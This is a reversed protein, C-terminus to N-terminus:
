QRREILRDIKDDMRVQRDYISDVRARLQVVESLAAEAKAAKLELAAVRADVASVWWIAAGTQLAIALILSIPVKKDLHWQNDKNDQNNM